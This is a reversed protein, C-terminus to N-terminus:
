FASPLRWGVEVCPSFPLYDPKHLGIFGIFSEISKLEVAWLGWGNNDINSRIKDALNNSEFQSLVNPFYKMILPDANM